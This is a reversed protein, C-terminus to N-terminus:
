EDPELAADAIWGGDGERTERYWSRSTPVPSLYIKTPPPSFSSFHLHLLEPVFLLLISGPMSVLQDEMDSSHSAPFVVM